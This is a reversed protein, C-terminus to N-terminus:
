GPVCGLAMGVEEKLEAKDDEQGVAPPYTGAAEHPPPQGPPTCAPLEVGLTGAWNPLVERLQFNIEVGEATYPALIPLLQCPLQFTPLHNSTLSVKVM